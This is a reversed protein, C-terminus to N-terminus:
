RGDGIEPYLRPLCEPCLGHSVKSGTRESLYGELTQWPGDNDGRVNKCGMCLPIFDDLAKALQQELRYHSVAAEHRVRAFHLQVVAFTILLQLATSFQAALILTEAPMSSVWPFTSQLVGMGLLVTAVARKEASLEPRIDARYFIGAATFLAATMYGLPIMLASTSFPPFLSLATQAMWLLVVTLTSIVGWRPLSRDVAELAGWVVLFGSAIAAAPLIGEQFWPQDGALSGAVYRLSWIAWWLSWKWLYSGGRQAALYALTWALAFPVLTQARTLQIVLDM